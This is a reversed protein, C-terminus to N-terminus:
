DPPAAWESSKPNATSIQTRARCGAPHTQLWEGRDRLSGLAIFMPDGYRVLGGIDPQGYFPRRVQPVAGDLSTRRSVQELMKRAHTMRMLAKPARRAVWDAADWNSHECFFRLLNCSGVPEQPWHKMLALESAVHVRRDGERTGEDGQIILAFGTGKGVEAIEENYNEAEPHPCPTRKLMWQCFREDRSIAIQLDAMVNGMGLPALKATFAPLWDPRYALAFQVHWRAAFFDGRRAAAVAWPLQNQLILRRSNKIAAKVAGEIRGSVSRRWADFDELVNPPALPSVTPWFNGEIHRLHPRFRGPLINEMVPDIEVARGARLILQNEFAPDALALATKVDLEPGAAFDWLPLLELDFFMQSDGGRLAVLLIVWAAEHWAQVATAYEALGLRSQIDWKIAKRYHVLLDYAMQADGALSFCVSTAEILRSDLCGARIMAAGERALRLQEDVDSRSSLWTLKHWAELYDPHGRPISLFERRADERLYLDLYAKGAELASNV